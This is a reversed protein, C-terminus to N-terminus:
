AVAIERGTASAQRVTDIIRHLEVATDFTPHDGHGTFIAKAAKFYMQGVAHPAGKPMSEPVDCCRPPAELLEFQRGGRAGHVRVDGLQPPGASTAILAGERGYVELRYGRAACPVSAIHASAVAGNSLHANILVNDPSNVDVMQKTHTDLWQRVQTTMVSAIRSYDAIVFRLSDLTHGAAITLTNGGLSADRQWTHNAPREVPDHRILSVHCSLVEGVYGGAMLEKMYVLGPTVRSQLGVVTCVNKSKALAALEQAEATTRGLPWETYVHKGAELAAKTLEYHLPARVVVAVLDIDPSVVMERYDHFALKAGFKRRSEEAGEANTTCVATLECDASAALAPLHSRQAWGVRANAGIVGVRLKNAM